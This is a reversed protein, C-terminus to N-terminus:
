RPSLFKECPNKALRRTYYMVGRLPAMEIEESNVVSVGAECVDWGDRCEATCGVAEEDRGWRRLDDM